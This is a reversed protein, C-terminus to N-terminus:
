AFVEALALTAGKCDKDSVIANQPDVPWPIALDSDNWVITREYQTVKLCLGPNASQDDTSRSNLNHQMASNFTSLTISSM